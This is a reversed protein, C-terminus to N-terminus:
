ATAPGGQFLRAYGKLIECTMAKAGKGGGNHAIYAVQGGAFGAPALGRFQCASYFVNYTVTYSALISVHALLDKGWNFNDGFVNKRTLKGGLLHVFKPVAHAQEGAKFRNAGFFGGGAVV